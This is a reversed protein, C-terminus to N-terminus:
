RNKNRWGSWLPYGDEDRLKLIQDGKVVEKAIIVKNGDYTVKSGTVTINDDKVIQLDQNEIYWAPGLHVNIEGNNTSITLHVGYTSNKDTYVKDITTVTGSITEVTKTDYLKNYNSGRGWGNQAITSSTIFVFLLAILTIITTKM